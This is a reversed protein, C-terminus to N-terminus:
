DMKRTLACGDGYCHVGDYEDCAESECRRPLVPADWALTVGDPLGMAQETRQRVTEMWWALHEPNSADYGRDPETM